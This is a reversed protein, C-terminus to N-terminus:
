QVLEKRNRPCIGKEERMLMKCYGRMAALLVEARWKESYGMATLNDMYEILITEFGEKSVNTSTCKLRRIIESTFTAVKSRNPMASRELITINRAMPKKCFDYM